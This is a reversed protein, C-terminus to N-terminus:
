LLSLSKLLPPLDDRFCPGFACVTPTPENFVTRGADVIFACPIGAEKAAAEVAKLEDESNVKVTIKTMSGSDIYSHAIEPIARTIALLFGHGVQACLKGIPMNIDVRVAVWMRLESM